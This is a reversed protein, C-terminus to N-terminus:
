QRGHDNGADEGYGGGPGHDHVDEGNQHDCEANGDSEAGDAQGRDDGQPQAVDGALRPCGAAAELGAGRCRAGEPGGGCTLPPDGGGAGLRGAVLLAAFGPVTGCGRDLLVPVQVQVAGALLLGAV